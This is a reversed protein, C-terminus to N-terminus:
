SPLDLSYAPNLYPAITRPDVGQEQCMTHVYVIFEPTGQYPKSAFQCAHVTQALAANVIERDGRDYQPAFLLAMGNQQCARLVVRRTTRVGSSAYELLLGNEGVMKFFWPANDRVDYDAYQLASPCNRIACEVLDFDALLSSSAYALLNGDRAVAKMMFAKNGRVAGDALRIASLPSQELVIGMVSPHNRFNDQLLHACQPHYSVAWEAIEESGPYRALMIVARHYDKMSEKMKLLKSPPLNFRM